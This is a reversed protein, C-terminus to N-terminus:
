ITPQARSSDIVVACPPKASRWPWEAFSLKGEVFAKSLVVSPLPKGAIFLTPLPM